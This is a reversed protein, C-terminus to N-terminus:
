FGLWRSDVLPKPSINSLKETYDKMKQVRAADTAVEKRMAARSANTKKWGSPGSRGM